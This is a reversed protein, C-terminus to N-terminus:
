IFIIQGGDALELFDTANLVDEVEEYLDEEKFGFMDFTMRCVHLHGGADAIMQIFDRHEPVNQKKMMKKMMATAMATVGPLAAVANPMGMSPNALPTVKLRDMKKKLVADMGYFTFFIHLETGESVAANAIVMAATAWDLSGKSLIISIKRDAEDDFKPM